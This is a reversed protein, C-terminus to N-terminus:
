VVCMRLDTYWSVSVPLSVNERLDNYRDDGALTSTGRQHLV